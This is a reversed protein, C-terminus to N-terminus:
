WAACSIPAPRALRLHRRWCRVFATTSGPSSCPPHPQHRLALEPVCCCSVYSHLMEPENHVFKVAAGSASEGQGGGQGGAWGVQMGPQAAARCLAALLRSHQDAPEGEGSSAVADAVPAPAAPVAAAAGGQREGRLLSLLSSVPCYKSHSVPRSSAQKVAQLLQAVPDYRDYEGALAYQQWRTLTPAAAWGALAPFPDFKPEGWDQPPSPRCCARTKIASQHTGCSVLLNLLGVACCSPCAALGLVCPVHPVSLRGWRNSPQRACCSAYGTTSAWLLRRSRRSPLSRAAQPLRRVAPLLPAPAGFLSPHLLRPLRRWPPPHCDATRWRGSWCCAQWALCM